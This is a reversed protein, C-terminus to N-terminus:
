KVWNRSKILPAEALLGATFTDGLGITSVTEGVFSPNIIIDKRNETLSRLRQGRENSRSGTTIKKIDQLNCIRGKTARSFALKNGNCLAQDWNLVNNGLSMVLSFQKTHLILNSIDILRYGVEIKSLLDEDTLSLLDEKIGLLERFEDENLGVSDVYSRLTKIIKWQEELSWISALEMHINPKDEGLSELFAITNKLFTDIDTSTDFSNFGSVLLWNVKVDKERLKQVFSSAIIDPTFENLKRFILRNSRGLSSYELIYHKPISGQKDFTLFLKEDDYTVLKRIENSMIPINVITNYGAFSAASAAQLGTGGIGLKWELRRELSNLISEDTVIYEAGTGNKMNWCVATCFEEWTNIISPPETKDSVKIEDYFQENVNGILDINATLGFAIYSM